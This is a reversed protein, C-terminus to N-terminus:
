EDNMETKNKDLKNQVLNRIEDNSLEETNTSENVILNAIKIIETEKLERSGTVIEDHHFAIAEVIPDPIGWVGLLYAGLLAHNTKLISNEAEIYSINESEMKQKVDDYYNGFQEILILKGIDHLLGALFLDDKILKKCDKIEAIRKSLVAVKNSHRWIEQYHKLNPNNEDLLKFLNITLILNKILNIGLFNVAQNINNVRLPLGFFASNTLQLIKATILPDKSIIGSVKNMSVNNSAIENELELYIEPLSPLQDIGNVLKQLNENQLYERLKFANKLTNIIEEPEAPKAISQHAVRATHLTTSDEAYGSLTVRIIEPYKKQIERLLKDGSMQPMRIDSVVINVKKNSLLELAEEGSKAFNLDWEKRYPYLMRKLASVVNEEDDVFLVSKNM